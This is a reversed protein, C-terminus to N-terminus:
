KIKNKLVPDHVKVTIKTMKRIGRREYALLSSLLILFHQM